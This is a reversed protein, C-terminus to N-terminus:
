IDLHSPTLKLLSFDGSTGHDTQWRDEFQDSSARFCSSSAALVAAPLARDRDCRVGARQSNASRRRRETRLDSNGVRHLQCIAAHDVLSARRPAPPAQPTSSTPPTTAPRPRRGPRNHARAAIRPWDADLRVIRRVHAPLRDLLASQTLLLPARADDLMFALREPPYDPDLPLYAGGAKLIGLLGILMELSREVCLGVVVEPGVGLARLHHALQNARADLERYTLSQDEFVVATADPTKARGAGRVAGAPDRVAGRARHREVRAPHHAARRRWFTSGASRGSRRGGGGGGAAPDAPGGDGRVSAREFLDTAYELAARYGAPAGDAGRQEALSVSLDFKAGATAVPEFAATLGPLELGAPANNQLVLMVQFLPHRALSRAPNLVEVLREFPLEQHSYAALNGTRVRALLERFSPDGSTDTRLVLTNVFFGVLDDLASDTRGAIPSGIPIDHAPASGPSCRRWRPRCCWSCARAARARWRWCVATCSRLSRSAAREAAIARWRRARGTARCSSSTPFTRLADRWFALQRAIASEPDDEAGLVEHQWLTYDAYQM